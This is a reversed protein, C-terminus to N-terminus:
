TNLCTIFKAPEKETTELLSAVVVLFAGSLYAVTLLLTPYKHQIIKRKGKSATRASKFGYMIFSKPINM